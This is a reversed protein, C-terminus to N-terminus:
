DSYDLDPEDAIRYFRRREPILERRFATRRPTALEDIYIFQGAFHITADRYPITGSTSQYSKEQFRNAEWKPAEGQFKLLVAGGAPLEIVGLDDKIEVSGHLLFRSGRPVIDTTVSSRIITGKTEGVNALHFFIVIPKGELVSGIYAERLIIRPRHTSLFEDRALTISENAARLMGRTSWWLTFTFAAIAVTALATFAGSHVDVFASLAMTVEYAACYYNNAYDSECYEEYPQLILFAIGVALLSVALWFLLNRRILM